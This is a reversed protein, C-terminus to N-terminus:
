LQQQSGGLELGTNVIKAVLLPSEPPHNQRHEKEKWHLKKLETEGMRQMWWSTAIAPARHSDSTEKQRDRLLAPM